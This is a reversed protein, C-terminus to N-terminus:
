LSAASEGAHKLAITGMGQSYIWNINNKDAILM